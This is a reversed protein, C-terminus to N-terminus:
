RLLEMACRTIDLTDVAQNRHKTNRHEGLKSIIQGQIYPLALQLETPLAVQRKGRLIKNPRM